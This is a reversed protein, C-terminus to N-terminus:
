LRSATECGSAPRQPPPTSRARPWTSGRRTSTKLSSRRSSTVISADADDIANLEDLYVLLMYKM